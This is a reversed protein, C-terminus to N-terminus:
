LVWNRMDEGHFRRVRASTWTFIGGLTAIIAGLVWLRMDNPLREWRTTNLRTSNKWLAESRGTLRLRGEDGYTADVEGTAVLNDQARLTIERDDVTFESLNGRASIMELKGGTSRALNESPVLEVNTSGLYGGIKLTSESDGFYETPQPPRKLAVLIGLHVERLARSGAQSAPLALPHCVLKADRRRLRPTTFKYISSKGDVNLTLTRPTSILKGDGPKLLTMGALIQFPDSSSSTFEDGQSTFYKVNINGQTIPETNDLWYFTANNPKYSINQHNINSIRVDSLGEDLSIKIHRVNPKRILIPGGEVKELNDFLCDGTLRVELDYPGAKAKRLWEIELAGISGTASVAGRTSGTPLFDFPRDSRAAIESGVLATPKPWYFGQVPPTLLVSFNAPLPQYFLRLGYYATTSIGAGLLVILVGAATANVFPRWHLSNKALAYIALALGLLAAILAGGIFNGVLNVVQDDVHIENATM